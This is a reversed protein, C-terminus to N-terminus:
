PADVGLAALIEAPDKFRYDGYEVVRGLRSAVREACRAPGEAKVARVSAICLGKWADDVFFGEECPFEGCQWCGDLGKAAACARQHCEASGGGDRCGKCGNRAHRCVGCVLGCPAVSQALEREDM